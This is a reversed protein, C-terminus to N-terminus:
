YTLGSQLAGYMMNGNILAEVQLVIHASFPVLCKYLLLIFSAMIVRKIDNMYTCYAEECDKSINKLYPMSHVVNIKPVIILWHM